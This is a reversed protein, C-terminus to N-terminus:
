CGMAAALHLEVAKLFYKDGDTIDVRARRSMDSGHPYRNGYQNWKATQALIGRLVRIRPSLPYHDDDIVRRLERELAAAQEDTLDILMGM